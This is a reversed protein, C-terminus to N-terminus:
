STGAIAVQYGVQCPYGDAVELRGTATHAIYSLQTSDRCIPYPGEHSSLLRVLTDRSFRGREPGLAEQLHQHRGQGEANGGAEEFSAFCNACWLADGQPRRLRQEGPRMEIVAADGDRDLFLLNDGMQWAQHESALAVAEQTTGSHQLALRRLFALPMGPTHPADELPVAAHGMALGARNLGGYSAVSGACGVHTFAHGADPQVTFLVQYAYVPFDLNKGLLPGERTNPFAIVTCYHLVRLNVALLLDFPLASGDAIGQLEELLAPASRGVLHEVPRTVLPPPPLHAHHRSEYRVAADVLPRLAQGHQSGLEYPSGSLSVHIV